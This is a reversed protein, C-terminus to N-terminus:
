WSGSSSGGTSAQAPHVVHWVGRFGDGAMQGKATDEKFRYLPMGNFAWQKSGGKRMILSYPGSPKAGAAAKFPPWFQACTGYCSSVGKKDKDFTYLTMGRADTLITGKTTTESGFPLSAALAVQSALFFASAALLFSRKM